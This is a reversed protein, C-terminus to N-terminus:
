AAFKLQFHTGQNSEFHFDGELQQSLMRVLRLGLSKTKRIDIAEPLGKGDDTIHLTFVDSQQTLTISFTGNKESDFAYKFANTALENVILGLPVATDVDFYINKAEIHLNVNRLGFSARIESVLEELYEEFPISKLDENEYLKQHILAMSRVRGQGEELVKKFDEDDFKGSQLYLLSAIIQLNNKVRHHIEKLLSEREILAREIIQKDAEVQKKSLELEKTRQQVKRVLMKKQAKIRQIRMKFAISVVTITTLIALISFWWTRWWPPLIKITKITTLEGPQGTRDISKLEFTYEGEPINTYTVYRRRADTITWEDNFNRLRYAFKSKINGFNLDSFGFSFINQEHNLVIQDTTLIDTKLASTEEIPVPKNFLEFSNILPTATNLENLNSPQFASLGESGGFYMMGSTSRHYAVNFHNGQLGDAQYYNTFIGTSPNFRSIGYNGSIWLNQKDDAMIGIIANSSLGDRENWIEFSVDDNKLHLKALGGGFTGVWIDGSDDKHITWIRNNPLSNPNGKEHSFVKVKGSNVDFRLLGSYYTGIWFTGSDEVICLTQYDELQPIANLTEDILFLGNWTGVWINQSEDEFVFTIDNSEEGGPLAITQFSPSHSYEKALNLGKKTGVWLRNQSDQFIYKIYNSNLNNSANAFIQRTQHTKPNLINLGSKTGVWICQDRSEFVAHVFNHSLSTPDSEDNRYHIFRSKQPHYINFGNGWSGIWIRGSRDECLSRITNGSLSLVDNKQFTHNKINSAKDITYVGRESTGVWLTHNQDLLTSLIEVNKFFATANNFDQNVIRHLGTSTGVWLNGKQDEQIARVPVGESFGTSTFTDSQYSYKFVGSTSTGIWLQLGDDYLSLIYDPSSTSEVLEESMTNLKFLGKDTGVWFWSSDKQIISTVFQGELEEVSTFKKSNRDFRFLGEYTGVWINRNADELIRWINNNGLSFPNQDDSKYIIFDYGDYVNLGDTTGLWMLGYSDEYINNVTVHSLGSSVSIRDFKLRDPQAELSCVLFLLISTLIFSSVKM